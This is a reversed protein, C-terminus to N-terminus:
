TKTDSPLAKAVCHISSFQNSIARHNLSHKMELNANMFNDNSVTFLKKFNRSLAKFYNQRLFNVKFKLTDHIFFDEERVKRM